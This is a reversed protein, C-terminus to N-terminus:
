GFLVSTGRNGCPARDPPKEGRTDRTFVESGPVRSLSQEPRRGVRSRRRNPTNKQLADHIRDEQNYAIHERLGQPRIEEYLKTANQCGENCRQHPYDAFQHVKPPRRVPPKREPFQGSSAM